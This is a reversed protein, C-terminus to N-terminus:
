HRKRTSKRSKRSRKPKTKKNKRKGGRYHATVGNNKIMISDGDDATFRQTTQDDDYIIMINQAGPRANDDRIVKGDRITGDSFKISVSTNPYPRATFKSLQIFDDTKTQGVSM